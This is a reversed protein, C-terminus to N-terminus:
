ASCTITVNLTDGALCSRATSFSAEGYLTGTTGGPANNGRVVFAGNIMVSANVNFVAVSGSNSCSRGSVSGLTLAPRTSNSYGTNELWGSHSAMTDATALASFSANDILGVYFAATYSSGELYNTLLDNAGGDPILNDVEEVWQLQGSPDFCEVRYHNHPRAAVDIQPRATLGASVGADPTVDIEM